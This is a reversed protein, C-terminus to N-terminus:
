NEAAKSPPVFVILLEEVIREILRPVTKDQQKALDELASYAPEPLEILVRKLGQGQEFAQWRAESQEADHFADEVSSLLEESPEHPAYQKSMEFGGYVNMSEKSSNPPMIPARVNVNRCLKEFMRPLTLGQQCARILVGPFGVISIGRRRAVERAALEDLLLEVAKLEMRSMLVMAEAEPYHHMPEKDRSQTSLAIEKSIQQAEEKELATLDDHVVIFQVDILEQIEEKAEHQQYEPLESAPIHIVDYFQRLIDVRGCQLASIMPGTDSVV